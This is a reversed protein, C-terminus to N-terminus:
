QAFECGEFRCNYIDRICYGDEDGVGMLCMPHDDPRNGTEWVEEPNDLDVFYMGFDSLKIEDEDNELPDIDEYDPVLVKM